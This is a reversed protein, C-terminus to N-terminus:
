LYHNLTLYTKWLSDSRYYFMPQFLWRKGYMFGFCFYGKDFLQGMNSAQFDMNLSPGFLLKKCILIISHDMDVNIQKETSFPLNFDSSLFFGKTVGFSKEYKFGIKFQAKGQNHDYGFGTNFLGEGRASFVSILLILFIRRM